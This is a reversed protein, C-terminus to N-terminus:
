GKRIDNPDGPQTFQIERPLREECWCHRACRLCESCVSEHNCWFSLCEELDLEVLAARAALTM